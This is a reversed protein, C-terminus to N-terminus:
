LGDKAIATFINSGDVLSMNTRAFTYDSYLIANSTNVTVNTAASTTTGAVTLTGSRTSNSLQNLNNVTFFNTFKNQVRSTLNGALDYNYSFQENVRNTGGPDFGSASSLQELADYGYNVASGDTRGQWYRQNLATYLYDHSNLVSHGSNELATHVLRGWDDFRNTIYAGNPLSIKAV